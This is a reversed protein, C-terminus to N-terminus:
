EQDRLIRQILFVDDQLDTCPGPAFLCTQERSVQKAHVRAVGLVMAPTHFNHTRTRSSQTPEFFDDAHDLSLSRVAPEFELPPDVTDLTHRLGLSGPTDM